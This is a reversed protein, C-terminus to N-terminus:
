FRHLAVRGDSLGAGCAHRHVEPALARGPRVLQFFLNAAEGQFPIYGVEDIIVLHAWTCPM